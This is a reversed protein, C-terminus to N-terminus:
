RIINAGGISNFLDAPFNLPQQWTIKTEGILFARDLPLTKSSFKPFAHLVKPPSSKDLLVLNHMVWADDESESHAHARWVAKGDPFVALSPVTMVCDGSQKSRFSFLIHNLKSFESGGFGGTQSTKKLKDVGGEQVCVFSIKGQQMIKGMPIDAWDGTITDGNRVGHFVNSFGTGEQLSSTGFWMVIVENRLGTTQKIWYGRNPINRLPQRYM